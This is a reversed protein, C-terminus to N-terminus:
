SYKSIIREIIQVATNIDSSQVGSHTVMRFERNSVDSFLLKNNKLENLFQDDTLQFNENLIFYVMNTYSSKISINDLKSLQNALNQANDHDDALRETMKELAFIGAAAVVGAQRMGGGLQKRARHAKYIFEKSGCLVSGIPASLGKSLCFTVSDAEKVLDKVQVGQDVAANFIRAGDIHFILNNEKAIKGVAKTYDSSISVAGCRNHSNEITIMRTVASHPDDERISNQIDELLLTGNKQNPLVNPVIGGLAALGGAEFLYIHALNGLIIEEGRNCHALMAALNGMTGSPVFLAAEKGTKEAAIEQLKNVSPDDGYVDDGVKASAMAERMEQTPKTVTDSRFDMYGM